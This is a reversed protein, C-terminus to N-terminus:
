KTKLSDIITIIDVNKSLPVPPKNKTFSYFKGKKLDGMKPGYIMVPSLSKGKTENVVAVGDNVMGIVKSNTVDALKQAFSSIKGTGSNCAGLFIIADKSFRVHKNSLMIEIESKNIPDINDGFINNNYGHSFISLFKIEEGDFENKESKVKESNIGLYDGLEIHGFHHNKVKIFSRYYKLNNSRYDTENMLSIAYFVPKFNPPVTYKIQIRGCHVNSLEGDAGWGADDADDSAHFDIFFETSKELCVEFWVDYYSGYSSDFEDNENVIVANGNKSYEIKNISIQEETLSSSIKLIGDTDDSDANGKLIKFPLMFVKKDISVELTNVERKSSEIYESLTIKKKEDEFILEGSSLKYRYQKKTDIDSNIAYMLEVVPLFEDALTWGPSTHSNSPNGTETVTPM